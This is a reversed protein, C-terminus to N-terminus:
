GVVVALMIRRLELPVESMQAVSVPNSVTIRGLLSGPGSHQKWFALANKCDAVHATALSVRAYSM